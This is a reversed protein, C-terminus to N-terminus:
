IYYTPSFMDDDFVKPPLHENYEFPEVLWKGPSVEKILRMLEAAYEGATDINDEIEVVDDVEYTVRM